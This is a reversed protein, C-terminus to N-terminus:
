NNYSIPQGNFGENSNGFDDSFNFYDTQAEIRESPFQAQYLAYLGIDDPDNPTGELQKNWYEFDFGGMAGQVQQTIIKGMEAEFIKFSITSLNLLDSDVTPQEIWVGANTRFIYNSYYSLDYLTGLNATINDLRLTTLLTTSDFNLYTFITGNSLYDGSDVSLDIPEDLTVEYYATQNTNYTVTIRVYDMNEDDVSGTETADSLDFRLLNWGAMFAEFHGATITKTYYNSSDNGLRLIVNVIAGPSSVTAKLSGVGSVKNLTDLVLGSANGGVVWTGGELLSDATNIVLPTNIYKSFRLFQVMNEWVIAFQNDIKQNNFQRNYTRALSSNSSNDYQATQKKLDTPAKFDIPLAYDYVRDYVANALLARRTTEAPDIRTLMVEATDRCMTYFDSLKNLTTGHLRSTITTKLQGITKM